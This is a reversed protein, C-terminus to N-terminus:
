RPVGADATGVGVVIPQGQRLMLFVHDGPSLSQSIATQAFVSSDGIMVYVGDNELSSVIGNIVQGVARADNESRENMKSVIANALSPM